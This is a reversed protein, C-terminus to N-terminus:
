NSPFSFLRWVIRFLLVTLLKLGEPPPRRVSLLYNHTRPHTPPIHILSFILRNQIPPAINPLFSFLQFPLPTTDLWRNSLSCSLLLLPELFVSWRPEDGRPFLPPTFELPTQSFLPPVLRRTFPDFPFPCAGLLRSPLTRHNNLHLFLLPVDSTGPFFLSHSLFCIYTPLQFFLSSEVSSFLELAPPPPSHPPYFLISRPPPLFYLSTVATSCSIM